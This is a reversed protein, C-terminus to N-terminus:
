SEGGAFRVAEPTLRGALDHVTRNVIRVVSRSSITAGSVADIGGAEAGGGKVVTLRTATKKGVFQCRWSPLAIKAGLGPTEKQELIFLGTIATVGPDFGILVEIRDAYGQGATKVVWGAPRGERRVMFVRYFRAAGNAPVELVGSRIELSGPKLTAPDLGVLAPIQRLTENRKNAAIIPSLHVQVAALAAGLVLALVLVLWARALNGGSFRGAPAPTNNDLINEM